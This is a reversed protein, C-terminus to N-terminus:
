EGASLPHYCLTGPEHLEGHTQLVFVHDQVSVSSESCETQFHEDPYVRLYSANHLKEGGSCCWVNFAIQINVSSILLNFM